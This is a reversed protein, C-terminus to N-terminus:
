QLSIFQLFFCSEDLSTCSCTTSSATAAIHAAWQLTSAEHCRDRDRILEQQARNRSENAQQHKGTGCVVLQSCSSRENGGSGLQGVSQQSVANEYKTQGGGGACSKSHKPTESKHNPTLRNAHQQRCAKAGMGHLCKTTKTTAAIQPKAVANLLRGTTNAAQERSQNNEQRTHALGQLLCQREDRWQVLM